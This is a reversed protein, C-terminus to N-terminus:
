QSKNNIPKASVPFKFETYFQEHNAYLLSKKDGNFEASNQLNCSRNQNEFSLNSKLPKECSDLMDCNQKLLFHSKSEDVIDAFMNHECCQKMSKRSSQNQFQHQLPGVKRIEPHTQGHIEDEVTWLEGRELKSLADPKCAQYGLSVLNSYNELMVDQCLDKQDPDLLQWEEWTFKVAVDDFTLSE